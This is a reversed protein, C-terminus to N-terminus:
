RSNASCLDEAELGRRKGVSVFGPIEKISSELYSRRTDYSEGLLSKGDVHLIDFYSLFLHRSSVCRILVEYWRISRKLQGTMELNVV